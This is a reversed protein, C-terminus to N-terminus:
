TADTMQPEFRGDQHNHIAAGALTRNELRFDWHLTNGWPVMLSVRATM